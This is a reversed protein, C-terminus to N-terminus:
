MRWRDPLGAKGLLSRRQPPDCREDSPLRRVVLDQGPDRLRDLWKKAIGDAEAALQVLQQLPV